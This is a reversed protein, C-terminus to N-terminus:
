GVKTKKATLKERIATYIPKCYCATVCAVVLLRKCLQELTWKRTLLYGAVIFVACIALIILHKTGFISNM